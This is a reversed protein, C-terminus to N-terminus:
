KNKLVWFEVEAKQQAKLENIKKLAKSYSEASYISICDFGYENKITQVTYGLKQMDAFYREAYKPTKFSGAIVHYKNRANMEALEKAKQETELRAQEEKLKQQQLQKVKKISDAFHISDMRHQYEKLTDNRNFLPIKEGLKKCSSYSIGILIIMAFALKKM